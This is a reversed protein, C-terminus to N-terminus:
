LNFTNETRPPPPGNFLKARDSYDIGPDPAIVGCERARSLGLSLVNEFHRFHLPSSGRPLTTPLPPPRPASSTVVDPGKEFM